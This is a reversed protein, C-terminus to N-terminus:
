AGTVPREGARGVLRSTGLLVGWSVWVVLRIPPRTIAAPRNTAAHPPPAALGAGALSGGAAVVAGAVSAGTALSAGASLWAAPTSPLMRTEPEDVTSGMLVPTASANAAWFGPKANVTSPGPVPSPKTLNQAPSVSMLSAERAILSSSAAAQASAPMSYTSSLTAISPMLTRVETSFVATLQREKGSRYARTPGSDVPKVEHASAWAIAVSSPEVVVKGSAWSTIVPGPSSDPVKSLKTSIAIGL